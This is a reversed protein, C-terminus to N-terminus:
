RKVRGASGEELGNFVEHVEAQGDLHDWLATTDGGKDNARMQKLWENGDEKCYQWCWAILMGSINREHCRRVLDLFNDFSLQQYAGLLAVQSAYVNNSLVSVITPIVHDHNSHQHKEGHQETSAALELLSEFYHTEQEQSSKSRSSHTSCGKGTFCGSCTQCSM